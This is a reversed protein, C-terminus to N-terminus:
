DREDKVLRLPVTDDQSIEAEIIEVQDDVMGIIFEALGEICNGCIFQERKEPKKLEIRNSMSDVRIGVSPTTYETYCVGCKKVDYMTFQRTTQYNDKALLFINAGRNLPPSSQFVEPRWTWKGCSNCSMPRRLGYSSAGPCLCTGREEPESSDVKIFQLWGCHECTNPIQTDIYCLSSYKVHTEEGTESVIGVTNEGLELIKCAVHNGGLKVIWFQGVEVMENKM